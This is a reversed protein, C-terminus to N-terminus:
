KDTFLQYEGMSNSQQLLPKIVSQLTNNEFPNSLNAEKLLNLYTMSGGLKCLHLYDKWAAAKDRKMKGYFDFANMSAFTYDIYYFPYMFIHLQRYWYLGKEMKENGDYDIHPLYIKELNRWLAKREDFSMDPNKYIEHQFHDVCVGYPIFTIGETLHAFRYKDADKGFFLEMFPFAFYEMSMSHIECAEYTPSMYDFLEYGRSCYAQFAHGAEHTLVDVDASTGNFNAFIFPSAYNAIYTCYGGMAKGKKSKLDMLKHQMMYSFYEKTEKSMDSYMKSASEILYEEDGAPMPNGDSFMYTQDYFKLKDVGIREAQAKRIKTCIPVLYDAVQKRFVVVDDQNYDTRQMRLYGLSIFNDFGLKKAMQTRLKILKDYLEDLEKQKDFLFDALAEYAGKRLSRDSNQLFKMLQPLNYKEDRFEILAAAMLKQYESIFQNEKQMDEIIEVSFAAANTKAKLLITEGWENIIEKQFRSETLAKYYRINYEEFVPLNEDYYAREEDYFVDSTDISNRIHAITAMSQVDNVLVNYELISKKQEEFKDANNIRDIIRNAQKIKDKFDIRAYKFDKFTEM